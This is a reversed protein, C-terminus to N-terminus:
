AAEPQADIPSDLPQDLVKGLKDLSALLDYVKEFYRGSKAFGLGVSGVVIEAAVLQGLTLEGLMVLWGGLGLLGVMALVQVAVGGVLQRLLKGYHERRAALYNRTLGDVRRSAQAPRSESSVEASRAALEELEAAVRYKANSEAVATTVAGRGLLVVGLMMAVLVADFALLVPHYFALLLMGALVQLTLGLGGVLLPGLAKQVGVVEFFRNTLERLDYQERAKAGLRPLRRAFDEAIRVFVRRAVLEVAYAQLLWITGSLVLVGFLLLALVVLPQFLSGLAITSVLVSVAVPVALSLGGLAVAFVVLGVIDRTELELLAWLRRWPTVQPLSRGSMVELGLLPEVRVGEVAGAGLARQLRAATAGRHLESGDRLEVVRAGRAGVRRVVVFGRPTYFVFAAGAVAADLIEAATWSGAHALVGPVRSALMTVTAAAHHGNAASTMDEVYLQSRAPGTVAIGELALETARLAGRVAAQVPM